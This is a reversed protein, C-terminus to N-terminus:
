KIILDSSVLEDAKDRIDALGLFSEVFNNGKKSLRFFNTREKRPGEESVRSISEVIGLDVLHKLAKTISPQPIDSVISIDSVRLDEPIESLVFLIRLTGSIKFVKEVGELAKLRKPTITDKVWQKYRKEFYEKLGMVNGM